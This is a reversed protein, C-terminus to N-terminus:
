KVLVYKYTCNYTDNAIKVHLQSIVYDMVGYGMIISPATCYEM